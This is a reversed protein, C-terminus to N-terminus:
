RRRWRTYRSDAEKDPQETAEAGRDTRRRVTGTSGRTFDVWVAFWYHGRYGAIVDSILEIIMKKEASARDAAVLLEVLAAKYVTGDADDAALMQAQTIGAHDAARTGLNFSNIGDLM